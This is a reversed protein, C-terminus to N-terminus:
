FLELRLLYLVDKMKGYDFKKAVSVFNIVDQITVYNLFQIIFFIFFNQPFNQNFFILNRTSFNKTSHLPLRLSFIASATTAYEINHNYPPIFFTM